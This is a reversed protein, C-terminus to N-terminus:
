KPKLFNIFTAIEADSLKKVFGCGKTKEKRNFIPCCAVINMNRSTYPIVPFPGYNEPTCNCFIWKIKDIHKTLQTIRAKYEVRKYIHEALDIREHLACTEIEENEECLGERYSPFDAPFTVVCCQHLTRNVSNSIQKQTKKKTQVGCQPCLMRTKKDIMRTGKQIKTKRHVLFCSKCLLCHGCEEYIPQCMVKSCHICTVVEKANEFFNIEERPSFISQLFYQLTKNIQLKKKSLKFAHMNSMKTSCTERESLKAFLVCLRLFPWVKRFGANDHCKQFYYVHM